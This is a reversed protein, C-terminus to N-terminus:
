EIISNYGGVKNLMETVVDDFSDGATGLRKLAVYNRESVAIHKLKAAPKIGVKIKNLVKFFTAM